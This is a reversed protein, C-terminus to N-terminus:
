GAVSMAGCDPEGTLRNGGQFPLPALVFAFEYVKDAALEELNLNELHYIGHRTITWQHVPFERDPDNSVM